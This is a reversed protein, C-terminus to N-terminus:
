PRHQGERGPEGQGADHPDGPESVCPGDPEASPQDSRAAVTSDDFEEHRGHDDPDAEAGGAGASGDTPGCGRGLMSEALRVIGLAVLCTAGVTVAVAAIAFVGAQLM